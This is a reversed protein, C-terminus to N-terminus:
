QNKSYFHLMAAPRTTDFATFDSIRTVTTGFASDRVPALYDPRAASPQPEVSITTEPPYLTPAPGCASLIGTLTVLMWISHPAPRYVSGICQLAHRLPSDVNAGESAGLHAASFPIM